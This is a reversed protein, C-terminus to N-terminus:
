NHIWKTGRNEPLFSERPWPWLNFENQGSECTDGDHSVWGRQGKNPTVEGIPSRYLQKLPFESKIGLVPIIYAIFLFMFVLCTGPILHHAQVTEHESISLYTFRRNM